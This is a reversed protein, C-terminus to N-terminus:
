NPTRIRLAKEANFNSVAESTRLYRGYIRVSNIQADVRLANGGHIGGPVEDFHKWGFPRDAGGDCLQGDVVMTGIRPNADLTAVIHHMGPTMLDSDTDWTVSTEGDSLTMAVALNPM